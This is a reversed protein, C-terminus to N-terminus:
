IAAMFVFQDEFLELSSKGVGTLSYLLPKCCISRM